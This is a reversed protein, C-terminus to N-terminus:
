RRGTIWDWARRLGAELPTEIGRPHDDRRSPVPESPEHLDDVDAALLVAREYIGSIQDRDAYLHRGPLPHTHVVVGYFLDLDVDAVVHDVVGIRRGERDLVPTGEPLALYAIPRGIDTEDHHVGHPTEREMGTM